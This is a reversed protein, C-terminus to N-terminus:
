ASGAIGTTSPIPLNSQHIWCGAESSGHWRQLSLSRICAREEDDFVEAFAAAFGARVQAASRGLYVLREGGDEFFAVARWGQPQTEAPYDM